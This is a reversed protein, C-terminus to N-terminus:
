ICCDFLHLTSVAAIFRASLVFPLVMRTACTWSVRPWRGGFVYMVNYLTSFFCRHVKIKLAEEMLESASMEWREKAKEHFGLLEVDFLLTDGAKIVGGGGQVGGCLLGFCLLIFIILKAKFPLFLRAAAAAATAVARHESQFNFKNLRPAVLIFM